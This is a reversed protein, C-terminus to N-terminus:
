KITLVTSGDWGPDPPRVQFAKLRELYVHAIGAAEPHAYLQKWLHEARQFGMDQFTKVALTIRDGLEKNELPTYIDISRIKGKVVVRDVAAMSMDKKLLRKTSSSLLIRTGYIKNIGELRSALNVSDGIASYDFRQESGMNGVIAEGSHIGIRMNLGQFGDIILKERIHAMAKQMRIAAIVAHDAQDPDDLPAGWFAMIADGIFKDVTGQYDLIIRTMETFYRNLLVGVKEPQLTESIATFGELDTFMLTINRRNGGLKLLEPHRIMQEVVQHPVYHQFAKRIAIRQRREHIFATGGRNVYLLASAVMAAGAPLFFDYYMFCVTSVSALGTIVLFLVMSSRIPHWPVTGTLLVALALGMLLLTYREPSMRVHRNILANAIFTAQIEAAPTLLGTQRIFPTAFTDARQIEPQASVKADFGVLVIKDKFIGEPLHNEPDLAQYYSVYKFTHDPGLYKIRANESLPNSQHSWQHGSRIHTGIVGRWFADDFGPIRRVVLDTDPTISAIGTLGGAEIFLELPEVRILMEYQDREQIALDGALVVNGAQKIARALAQDAETESTETFLIDFAIVSAGGKDLADILRAHIARSWPWQEQLNGFSPEDIGVIVIPLDVRGPAALITLADFGISEVRQWFPMRFLYFVVGGIALASIIANVAQKSMVPEGKIGYRSKQRTSRATTKM